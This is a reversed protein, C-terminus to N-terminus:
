DSIIEAQAGPGTTEWLELDQQLEHRAADHRTSSVRFADVEANEIREVLWGRETLFSM